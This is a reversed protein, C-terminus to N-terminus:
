QHEKLKTHISPYLNLNTHTSKRYMKHGLSGNPRRYIDIDFFPVHSDREAEMSFLTNQHVGNLHDLFDNLKDPKHSWIVFADDM